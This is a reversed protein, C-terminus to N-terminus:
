RMLVMKKAVRQNNSTLVYLYLGSTVQEGMENKADWVVTYTGANQVTNTLTRVQQGLINYITLNVTSKEPLSYDITTSPNFPNPYNQKLSFKEAVQAVENNESEIATSGVVVMKEVSFNDFYATGTVWNNFRARVSIGTAPDEGEKAQH